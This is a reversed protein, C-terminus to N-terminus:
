KTTKFIYLVEKMMNNMQELGEAQTCKLSQPSHVELNSIILCKAGAGFVMLKIERRGVMQFCDRKATIEVDMNELLARQIDRM